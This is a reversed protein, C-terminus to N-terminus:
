MFNGHIISHLAEDDCAESFLSALTPDLRYFPLEVVKTGRRVCETDVTMHAVTRQSKPPETEWRVKFCSCETFSIDKYGTGSKQMAPECTFCCNDSDWSANQFFVNKADAAKEVDMALLWNIDRAASHEIFLGLTPNKDSWGDQMAGLVRLHRGGTAEYAFSLLRKIDDRNTIGLFRFLDIATAFTIESSGFGSVSDLTDFSPNFDICSPRRATGECFFAHAAAALMKFRGMACKYTWRIMEGQIGAELEADGEAVQLPGPSRRLAAVLGLKTEVRMEKVVEVELETLQRRKMVKLEAEM